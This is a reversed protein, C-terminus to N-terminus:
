MGESSEMCKCRCTLGNYLWCNGAHGQLNFNLIIFVQIYSLYRNSGEWSFLIWLNMQWVLKDAVALSLLWICVTWLTQHLQFPWVPSSGELGVIASSHPRSSRPFISNGLFVDSFPRVWFILWLFFGWQVRKLNQFIGKADTLCAPKFLVLTWM